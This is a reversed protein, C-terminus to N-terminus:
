IVIHGPTWRIASVQPSRLAFFIRCTDLFKLVDATFRLIGPNSAQGALASRFKPLVPTVNSRNRPDLLRRAALHGTSSSRV